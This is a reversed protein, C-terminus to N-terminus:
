IAGGKGWEYRMFDCDLMATGRAGSCVRWIGKRVLRGGGMRKQLRPWWGTRDRDEVCGTYMQSPASGSILNLSGTDVGGIGGGVSDGSEGM